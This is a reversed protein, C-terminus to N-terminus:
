KLEDGDPLTITPVAGNGGDLTVFASISASKAGLKISHMLLLDPRERTESGM